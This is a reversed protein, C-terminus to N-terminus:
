HVEFYNGRLRSQPKCFLFLWGNVCGHTAAQNGQLGGGPGLCLVAMIMEEGGGWTKGKAQVGRHRDSQTM